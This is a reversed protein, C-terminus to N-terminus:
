LPIIRCDHCQRESACSRAFATVGQALSGTRGHFPALMRRPQLPLGSGRRSISLPQERPVGLEVLRDPRQFRLAARHLAHTAPDAPEGVVSLLFYGSRARELALVLAGVKRGQRAITAPVAVDRLTALARDRRADDSARQSLELMLEAMVANQELPKQRQAFVGVASPDATHAFFGGREPTVCGRRQSSRPTREALAFWRADGSVEGLTALGRAMYAQDALHLLTGEPEDAAHVFADGRRHTVEMREAATSASALWPGEPDVEALRAFADILLGTSGAYVTTDTRPLGLARREADALAYYEAGTCARGARHARGRRPQRLLRGRPDELFARVYAAVSRAPELWRADNTAGYASVFSQIAGAQIAALKEFHPHQWDGAPPTSTCGV